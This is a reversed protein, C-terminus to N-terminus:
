KMSPTHLLATLDKMRQIRQNSEKTRLSYNINNLPMIFDGTPDLDFMWGEVILICPFAGENANQSVAQGEERSDRKCGVVLIQLDRERFSSWM